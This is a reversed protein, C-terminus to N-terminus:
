VRSSKIMLMHCGVDSLWQVVEDHAYSLENSEDVTICQSTRVCCANDTATLPQYMDSADSAVHGAHHHQDLRQDLSPHTGVFLPLLESPVM